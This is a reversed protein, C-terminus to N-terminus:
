PNGKPPTEYIYGSVRIPIVPRVRSTTELRITDSYSGKDPKRNKVSLIYAPKGDERTPKLDFRIHSGDTARAATIEFPYKKRPVIKVLKKIPTGANGRLIVRVPRILAFSEVRGSIKVTLERHAPDDTLIVAKKSM